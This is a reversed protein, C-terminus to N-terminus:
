PKPYRNFKLKPKDLALLWTQFRQAADQVSDDNTLVWDAPLSPTDALRQLRQEIQVLSERGRALLRQRIVPVSASILVTHMDPFLHKAQPWFGRSGNILVVDAGGQDTMEKHRIGYSHGNAQWRLAFANASTLREFDSCSVSEHAEGGGYIERDITRRALHIRHAGDSTLVPLLLLQMLISDKGVGSPGMVYILRPKSM